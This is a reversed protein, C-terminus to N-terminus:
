PQDETKTVAHIRGKQVNVCGGCRPCQLIVHLDTEAVEVLGDCPERERCIPPAIEDAIKAATSDRWQEFNDASPPEATRALLYRVSRELRIILSDNPWTGDLRTRADDAAKTAFATVSENAPLPESM